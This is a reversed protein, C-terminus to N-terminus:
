KITEVDFSYDFCWDNREFAGPGHLDNWAEIWPGLWRPDQQYGECLELYHLGSFSSMRPCEGIGERAIDRETIEQVRGCGVGTITVHARSAWEPMYRPSRWPRKGQKPVVVSWPAYKIAFSDDAKYCILANEPCDPYIRTSIRWTEKVYLKEGVAYRPFIQMMNGDVTVIFRGDEDQEVDEIEGTMGRPLKIIRRTMTKKGALLARICWDAMVIGKM